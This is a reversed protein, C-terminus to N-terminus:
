KLRTNRTVSSTTIACDCQGIVLNRGIGIVLVCFGILIHTTMQRQATHVACLGICAVKDAETDTEIDTLTSRFVHVGCAPGLTTETQLQLYRGFPRKGWDGVM